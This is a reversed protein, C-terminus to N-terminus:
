RILNFAAFLLMIGFIQKIIRVRLILSLRAGIFVFGMSTLAVTLAAPWYVYGLMLPTHTSVHWGTIMTSITGTIAIPLGVAAATGSARRMSINCWTFFPVMVSGGGVGLLGSKAGVAAAVGYSSLKGPVRRSMKPKILLLMHFAIFTLFLAFIVKLLTTSLVSALLVGMITGIIVGPLFRWFIEWKVAGRVHHSFASSAATFVMAALSTATAMHMVITHNFGFSAFIMALAPVVIVGGGLGLLGAAIGALAGTSAFLLFETIIHTMLM